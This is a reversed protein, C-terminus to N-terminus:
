ATKLNSHVLNGAYLALGQLNDRLADMMFILPGNAKTLNNITGEDIM